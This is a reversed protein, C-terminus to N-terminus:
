ENLNIGISRVYEFFSDRDTYLYGNMGMNAAGDINTQSDDVLLTEGPLSGIEELAFQYIEKDPKTMGVESSIIIRDFLNKFDPYDVYIKREFFAANANSLLMTRFGQNKLALIAKSLIMDVNVYSDIEAKIEEKTSHVGEYRLFYDVVDDESLKGLDFNKFLEPLKEDVYGQELRNKNYWKYLVPTSIVGFCDFIFTNIKSGM